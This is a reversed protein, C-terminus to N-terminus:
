GVVPSSDLPAPATARTPPNERLRAPLLRALSATVQAQRKGL